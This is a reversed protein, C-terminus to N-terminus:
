AEMRIQTSGFKIATEFDATMGMSIEKIAYERALKNMYGFYFFSTASKPPICMIGKIAIGEKKIKQFVSDFDKLNVGSKQQENGVNIQIFLDIKKNIKSMEENIKCALEVSDITEIVDFLEVAKKIKNKQLNGIFHLKIDSHQKKIIPWKLMSDQIKNEGFSRQSSNNILYLIQEQTLNKSVLLLKSNNKYLQNYEEIKAILCEYNQLIQNLPM